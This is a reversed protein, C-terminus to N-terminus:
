TETLFERVQIIIYENIKNAEAPRAKPQTNCVKCIDLYIKWARCVLRHKICFAAKRRMTHLTYSNAEGFHKVLAAQVTHYMLLAEFTQSAVCSDSIDQIVQSVFMLKDRDKALVGLMVTWKAFAKKRHHQRLVFCGNYLDTFHLPSTIRNVDTRKLLDSANDYRRLDLLFKVKMATHYGFWNDTSIVKATLAFLQLAIPMLVPTKYLPIMDSIIFKCINTRESPTAKSLITTMFSIFQTWSEGGLKSSARCMGKLVTLVHNDHCKSNELTKAYYEKMTALASHIDRKSKYINVKMSLLLLVDHMKPHESSNVLTQEALCVSLADDLMNTARCLNVYKACLQAMFGGSCGLLVRLRNFYSSIAHVAEVQPINDIFKFFYEFHQEAVQKINCASTWARLVCHKLEEHSLQSQQFLSFLDSLVKGDDFQVRVVMALLPNLAINEGRHEILSHDKLQLLDELYEDGDGLNKFLMAPIDVTDLFSMLSLIMLERATCFTALEQFVTQLSSNYKVFTEPNNKIDTLLDQLTFDECKFALLKKKYEIYTIAVQLALPNNALMTAVSQVNADDSVNLNTSLFQVAEESSFCPVPIKLDADWNVNQSTIITYVNTNDLPLLEAISAQDQVGDFVVLTQESELLKYMEPVYVKVNTVATINARLTVRSLVNNLQNPISSHRDCQIFLVHGEHQEVYKLALETKGVGPAGVIAVNVMHKRQKGQQCALQELEQQRAM